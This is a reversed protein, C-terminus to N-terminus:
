LQAQWINIEDEDDSSDTIEEDMNWMEELNEGEDEYDMRANGYFNNPDEGNAMIGYIFRLETVVKVGQTIVEDAKLFFIIM